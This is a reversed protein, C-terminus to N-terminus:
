TSVFKDILNIKKRSSTLAPECRCPVLLTNSNEKDCMCNMTRPPNKTCSLRLKRPEDSIRGSCFYDSNFGFTYMQTFTAPAHAGTRGRPPPPSPPPPTPPHQLSSTEMSSSASATHELALNSGEGAAAFRLGSGSVTELLQRTDPGAKIERLSSDRLPGRVSTSLGSSLACCILCVVLGRMNM